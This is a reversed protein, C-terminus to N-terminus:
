KNEFNLLAPLIFTIFFYQIYCTFSNLYDQLYRFLLKSKHGITEFVSSQRFGKQMPLSCQGIRHLPKITLTTLIRNGTAM